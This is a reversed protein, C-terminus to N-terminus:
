RDRRHRPADHRHGQNFHLGLVGPQHVWRYRKWRPAQRVPPLGGRHQLSSGASSLEEVALSGQLLRPRGGHRAARRWDSECRRPTDADGASQWPESIGKSSTITCGDRWCAWPDGTTNATSTTGMPMRNNVFPENYLDFVIMPDSKFRDAVSSWFAPSHDADPAPQQNTNGDALHAGPASWHLEVIAYLGAAHLRSVYDAIANQYNAGSSADAVGNIGLWCDENLPIRVSNIHWTVMAAIAADDVAGDFVLSGKQVCKYESGSRNVGRFRMEQGAADVIRNGQVRLGAAASLPREPNCDPEPPKPAEYQYDPSACGAAALAAVYFPLHTIRSKMRARSSPLQTSVVGFAPSATLSRPGTVGPPVSQLHM